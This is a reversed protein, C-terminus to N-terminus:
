ERGVPEKGLCGAEAARASDLICGTDGDGAQTLYVLDEQLLRRVAEERTEVISLAGRLGEGGDVILGAQGLLHLQGLRHDVVDVGVGDLDSLKPHKESTTLGVGVGKAGVHESAIFGVM